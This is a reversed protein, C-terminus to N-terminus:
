FVFVLCFSPYICKQMLSLCLISSRLTWSDLMNFSFRVKQHWGSWVYHTTWLHRWPLKNMHQCEYSPSDHEGWGRGPCQDFQYFFGILLKLLYALANQFFFNILSFESAQLRSITSHLTEGSPMRLKLNVIKMRVTLSTTLIMRFSRTRLRRLNNQSAPFYSKRVSLQFLFLCCTLM